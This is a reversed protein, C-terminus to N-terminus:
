TIRRGDVMKAEIGLREALRSAIKGGGHVLIKKGPIAAFKELFDALQIDDDIVNGGIKIINLTSSSM